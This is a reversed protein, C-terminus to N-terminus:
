SDRRPTRALAATLREITTQQAAVTAALDDLQDQMGVLVGMVDVAPGSSPRPPIPTTM